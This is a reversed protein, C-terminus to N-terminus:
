QPPSGGQYAARVAPVIALAAGPDRRENRLLLINGTRRDAPVDDTRAAVLCHFHAYSEGFNFLYTTPADMVATIAEVLRKVRDGFSALEREDLEQWGLAHRRVRLFFWGPVEYGPTVECAWLDDRFVVATEDLTESACILCLAPDVIAGDPFRRVRAQNSGSM